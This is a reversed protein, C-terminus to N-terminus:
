FHKKVTALLDEPKIPKELFAEPTIDVDVGLADKKKDRFPQQELYQRMDVGTVHRAGSQVIVPVGKLKEDRKVQNLFKIGSEGPMMLDLLILRPPAERAKRLGEAGDSASFTEYGNDTLIAELYSVADPDDDIILIKGATGM